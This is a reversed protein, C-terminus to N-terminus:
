RDHEGDPDLVTPLRTGGTRGPPLSGPAPILEFAPLSGIDIAEGTLDRWTKRQDETLLELIQQVAAKDAQRFNFDIVPLRVEQLLPKFDRAHAVITRVEARQEDTLKLLKLNEPDRFAGMGAAQRELQRLRAAQT